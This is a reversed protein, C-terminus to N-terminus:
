KYRNKSVLWSTVLIIFYFIPILVSSFGFILVIMHFYHKEIEAIQRALFVINCLSLLVIFIPDTSPSRVAAKKCPQFNIMAMLFITLIILSYVFFMVSLTVSFIIFLLIRILLLLVSFWRCDFTGLECGQFSDVFAHLFHWNIPIYSLAAQFCQFPYTILIVTPM